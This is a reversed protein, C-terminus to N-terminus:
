KKEEIPLPLGIVSDFDILGSYSKLFTLVQQQQEETQVIIPLQVFRTIM